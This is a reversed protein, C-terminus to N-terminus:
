LEGFVVEPGPAGEAGGEPELTVMAASASRLDWGIPVVFPGQGDFAYTGLGHVGTGDAVWVQYVHGATTPPLDSSVLYAESSGPRYVVMASATPAAVEGHLSAAEHAPDLAVAMAASMTSTAALRAEAADASARATALDADLTSVRSGLAGVAVALVAAAALAVAGFRRLTSTERRLRAIEPSPDPALAGAPASGPIVEAVVAASPGRSADRSRERRDSSRGGHLVALSPRDPAGSGARDRDSAVGGPRSASDAAIAAMVGPLLSAPPRRQPVALSLEATVQALERELSRCDACVAIHRRFADLEAPDLDELVSGAVLRRLSGHDM